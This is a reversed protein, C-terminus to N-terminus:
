ENEAAHEEEPQDEGTAVPLVCRPFNPGAQQQRVLTRGNLGDRTARLEGPVYYARLDEWLKDREEGM